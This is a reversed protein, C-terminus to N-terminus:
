CQIKENKSCRRVSKTAEADFQDLIEFKVEDRNAKKM